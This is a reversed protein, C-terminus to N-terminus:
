YRSLLRCLVRNANVNLVIYDGMGEARVEPSDESDQYSMSLYLNDHLAGSNSVYVRYGGIKQSVFIQVYDNRFYPLDETAGTEFEILVDKKFPHGSCSVKPLEQALVSNTILLAILSFIAKM